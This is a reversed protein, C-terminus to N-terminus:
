KERQQESMHRQANLMAGTSIESPLKLIQRRKQNLNYQSFFHLLTSFNCSLSINWDHNITNFYKKKKSFISQVNKQLVPAYLLFTLM